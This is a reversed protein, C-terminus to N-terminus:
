RRGMRRLYGGPNFTLMFKERSPDVAFGPNRALFDAVAEAPGPGFNPAVPRGNVNTDEVILYCGPTVLPAYLDLEAVVHAYRHDSDLIVMVREVAAARQRVAEVVGASTSSGTLYTVRPHVPRCTGAPDPKTDVTVVEGEGICDLVSALFLASGGWATGTEVVLGPRTEWLIEQYVWLDLPCKAAPIGLWTTNKWTQEPTGYYLQHFRQVVDVPSLRGGLRRFFRAFLSREDM